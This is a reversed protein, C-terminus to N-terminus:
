RGGNAAEIENTVADIEMRGVLVQFELEYKRSEGPELFPLTGTKTAHARGQIAPTNAPEMGMVYTGQGMMRWNIFAPLQEPDFRIAFGLGEGGRLSQNVLLAAARGDSCATMHHIFVEETFGPQPPSVEGWQSLGKKSQEERPEMSSHSVHLRAGESLLPFGANCHYLIMHPTREFGDNTVVDELWLSTSGLKTWIRRHLSLNEGFVKTQRTTGRVEFTCEDGDWTESWSVNESPICSIRGHQGLMGHEDEVPPGFGTLGCTTLLGGFFTRLWELGEPEYYQASVDGTCSRWCLSMGDFTAHAIDLTRGALLTFDLGGGNRVRIADMGAARGDTLRFPTIGGIQDLNGSYERLTERTLQKGFLTAM